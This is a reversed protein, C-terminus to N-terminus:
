REGLIKKKNIFIILLAIVLILVGILVLYGRTVEGTRPLNKKVLKSEFKNNDSFQQDAMVDSTSYENDTGSLVPEESSSSEELYEYSGYFGVGAPSEYQKQEDAQVAQSKILLFFFACLLLILFFPQKKKM